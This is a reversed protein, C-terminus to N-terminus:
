IFQMKKVASSLIYVRINNSQPDVPFLFFGPRSQDVGLTAGVMVEDDVFTVKVKQGSPNEGEIYKKREDFTGNGVFDRVFFIAKVANMFIEIADGDSKDVPYVHFRDKQPFFDGTYGKIMRGDTYRVIVKMNEM